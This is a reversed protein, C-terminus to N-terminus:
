LLKDSRAQEIAAHRSTVGLKYYISKIHTKLTNTSVYLEAAIEPQTLPSTLLRLVDLERDSLRNPVGNRRRLRTPRVTSQAAALLRRRPEYPVRAVLKTGRELHSAAEDDRCLAAYVLSLVLHPVACEPHEELASGEAVELATRAEGEAEMSRGQRRLIEATHSRAILQVIPIAPRLRRATDFAAVASELQGDDILAKGLILWLATVIEERGPPVRELAESALRGAETLRGLAALSGARLCWAEVLIADRNPGRIADSSEEAALAFAQVENWRGEYYAIWAEALTLGPRSGSLGSPLTRIWDRLTHQRGEGILKWRRSEILDAAAGVDGALMYHNVAEGMMEHDALWMAARRHREEGGAPEQLRLWEAFLHHYRYWQRRHDLPTLFLNLRELQELMAQADSVGTVAECLPATLRDLVATEEVFRRVDAPLVGVVEERVYDAIHRDNAAFQVVYSHPDAHRRMALAALQLGVAWGETRLALHSADVPMVDLGTAENLLGQAEGEDFRLEDYRIENLQGAARLKSLRLPPDHRSGILLHVGPLGSSIVADVGAHIQGEGIVHYDDLVATREDEPHLRLRTILQEPSRVTAPDPSRLAGAVSPWFLVPDNDERGLSLWGAGVNRRDLWGTLAETKGSGAPASLL